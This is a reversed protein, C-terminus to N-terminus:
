VRAVLSGSTCPRPTYWAPVQLVIRVGCCQLVPPHLNGAGLCRCLLYLALSFWFAALAEQWEEWSAPAGRVWASLGRVLNLVEM